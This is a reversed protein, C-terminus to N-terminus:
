KRHLYTHGDSAVFLVGGDPLEFYGDWGAVPANTYRHFQM